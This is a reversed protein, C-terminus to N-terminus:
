EALNEQIVQNRGANKARYLADDARQIFSDVSDSGRRYTAVGCSITVVGFHEGTDKRKMDRSAITRRISEAVIMGGGIPTKPLVVAFEEGGFRAVTDMGKVQDMLTAAVAKLVEDGILHGFKDNFQKFHDIDILLLTLDTFERSAEDIREHLRRDFAKRNFVRTLFDLESETTAKALNERLDLIERQSAELRANLVDSNTKLSHAGEMIRDAIAKLAGEGPNHELETLSLSISKGVSDNMGSFQQVYSLVSTLLKRADVATQEILQSHHQALYSAHLFDFREQTFPLKEREMEKFAIALERPTGLLAGFAVSYNKGHPPLNHARLLELSQGALQHLDTEVM